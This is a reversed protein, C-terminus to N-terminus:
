LALNQLIYRIFEKNSPCQLFSDPLKRNAYATSIANRISREVCSPTTHMLRSIELYLGKSLNRILMNDQKAFLVADTLYSCGILKSSIGLAIIYNHIYTRAQDSEIGSNLIIRSDRRIRKQMNTSSMISTYLAHGEVPKYLVYSAGYVRAAEMAIDSYFRTCCITAPPQKLENVSRLLSIGDLGPLLIEFILADIERHKALQLADAGNNVVDVIEIEQYIKLSNQAYETFRDDHDAILVKIKDM